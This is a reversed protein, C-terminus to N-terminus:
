FEEKTKRAAVVAKCNNSALRKRESPGTGLFKAMGVAPLQLVVNKELFFCREVFHNELVM